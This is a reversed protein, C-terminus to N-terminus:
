QTFLRLLRAETNPNIAEFWPDQMQTGFLSILRSLYRCYLRRFWSCGGVVWKRLGPSFSFSSLCPQMCLSKCDWSWINLESKSAAQIQEICWWALQYSVSKCTVCGGTRGGDLWNAKRDPPPPTLGMQSAAGEEYGDAASWDGKIIINFRDSMM